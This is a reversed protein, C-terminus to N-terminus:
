GIGQALKRRGGDTRESRLDNVQRGGAFSWRGGRLEGSACDPCLRVRRGDLEDAMIQMRQRWTPISITGSIGPFATHRAPQGFGQYQVL